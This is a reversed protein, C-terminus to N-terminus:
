TVISCADRASVAELAAVRILTVEGLRDRLQASHFLEEFYRVVNFLWM